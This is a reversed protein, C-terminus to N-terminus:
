GEARSARGRVVRQAMSAIGFAIDASSNVTNEARDGETAIPDLSAAAGPGLGRVLIRIDRVAADRAAEGAAHGDPIEGDSFVAIVRDGRLEGLVQIGKRLTPALATGGAIRAHRLARYVPEPDATLPVFQHVGTDWLILGVQYNAGVAEGVFQHAGLVALDLRSRGGGDHEAMSGSVDICLVVKGM